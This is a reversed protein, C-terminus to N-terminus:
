SFTLFSISRRLSFGYGDLNLNMSIEDVLKSILFHLPCIKRWKLLPARNIPQKGGAALGQGRAHEALM